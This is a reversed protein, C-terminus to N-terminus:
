GIGRGFSRVTLLGTRKTVFANKQKYENYEDIVTKLGPKSSSIEKDTIQHEASLISRLINRKADKM